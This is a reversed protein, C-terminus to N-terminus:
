GPRRVLEKKRGARSAPPRAAAHLALVNCVMRVGHFRAAIACALYQVGFVATATAANTLGAGLALLVVPAVVSLLVSLAALDRFLLFLRHAQSVEPENDREKFLRYWLTNQDKASRPFEGGVKVKLADVDIREDRRAYRSFARSGPLVDKVRWYVLTAKVDAPILSTLLLVVVPAIAGGALKAGSTLWTAAQDLASPSAFAAVALADAVVVAWIWPVNQAKLPKTRV